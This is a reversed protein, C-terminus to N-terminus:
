VASRGIVPAATVRQQSPSPITVGSGGHSATADSVDTEAAFVKAFQLLHRRSTLNEIDKLVLLLEMAGPEALLGLVDNPVNPHNEIGDFFWAVPIDLASALDVLRRASMRSRGLEYKNVQQSSIACRKAVDEQTLDLMVRRLRVRRGVLQDITCHDDSRCNHKM